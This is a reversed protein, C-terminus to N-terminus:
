TVPSSSWKFCCLAALHNGPCVIESAAPAGIYCEVCATTLVSLPLTLQLLTLPTIKQHQPVLHATDLHDQAKNIVYHHFGMNRLRAAVPKSMTSQLKTGKHLSTVCVFPQRESAMNQHTLIHRHSREPTVPPPLATDTSPQGVGLCPPLEAIASPSLFSPDRCHPFSAAWALYLKSTSIDVNCVLSPIKHWWVIPNSPNKYTDPWLWALISLCCISRWFICTLNLPWQIWM